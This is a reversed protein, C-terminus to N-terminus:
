ICMNFINKKPDMHAGHLAKNRRISREGQFINPTNIENKEILLRYLTIAKSISYHKMEIWKDGNTSTDKDAFVRSHKSRPLYVRKWKYVCVCMQIMKSCSSQCRHLNYTLFRVHNLWLRQSHMRKWGVQFLFSGDISDTKKNFQCEFHSHTLLQNSM